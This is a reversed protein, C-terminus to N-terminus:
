FAVFGNPVNLGNVVAVGAIGVFVTRGFFFPSGFDFFDTSPSGGVVSDSGLDNFVANNSTFLKTADMINLSTTGSGVGNFGALGISSLTATGGGTVCYFGSGNSTPPCDSIGLSALTTADSIYLANSGTDLFGGLGTGTGNCNTDTYSVGNPFPFTVTPFDLCPDMAFVTVNTLANDTQTGIGFNITGTLSTAGTAAVSPFTIMFGNTDASSFAAVVNTSQEGTPVPVAGCTGNPCTYYPYGSTFSVTNCSSGCDTTFGAIGLIGNAGLTALTDENGGNPLAPNVPTPLCNSPVPASTAGLLQIPINSAQEGAIQVDGLQLPGWSYSTDGYQVCELLASNGVLIQSLSVSGLVSPVLRLGISGTDVLVHDIPPACTKTGHQCVTLTIFIGNVLGGALGNPGSSAELQATNSVKTSTTPSSNGSGCGALVLLCMMCLLLPAAVVRLPSKFSL